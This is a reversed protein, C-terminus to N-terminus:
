RGSRLEASPEPAQPETDAQARLCVAIVIQNVVAALYFAGMTWLWM